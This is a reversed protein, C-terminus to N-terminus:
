QLVARTHLKWKLTNKSQLIHFVLLTSRIMDKMCLFYERHQAQTGNPGLAPPPPPLPQVTSGRKIGNRGHTPLLLQLLQPKRTGNLGHTQQLLQRLLQARSGAAAGHTLPLAPQHLPLPAPRRATVGHTGLLVPSAVPTQPPAQPPGTAQAYRDAHM